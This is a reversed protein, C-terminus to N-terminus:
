RRRQADDVDARQQRLEDAVPPSRSPTSLLFGAPLRCASRELSIRIFPNRWLGAVYVPVVARQQLWLRGLLYIALASLLLIFAGIIVVQNSTGIAQRWILRCAEVADFFRNEAGAM